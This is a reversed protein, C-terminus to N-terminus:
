FGLALAATELTLHSHQFELVANDPLTAASFSDRDYTQSSFLIIRM